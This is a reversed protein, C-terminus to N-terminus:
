RALEMEWLSIDLPQVGLAEDWDLAYCVDCDCPDPWPEDDVAAATPPPERHALRLVVVVVIAVVVGAATLTLFVHGWSAIPWTM